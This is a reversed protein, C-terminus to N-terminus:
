ESEPLNSPDKFFKQIFQEQKPGLNFMMGAQRLLGDLDKGEQLEEGIWKVARRVNKEEPMITTM